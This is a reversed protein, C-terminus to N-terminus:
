ERWEGIRLEGTSLDTGTKAAEARAAALLDAGPLDAQEPGTLVVEAQEDDSIWYAARYTTM